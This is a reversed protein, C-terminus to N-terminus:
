AAARWAFVSSGDVPRRQRCAGKRLLYVYSASIGFQQAILRAPGTSSRIQAVADDSLRSSKARAEAVRLRRIASCPLANRKALAAFSMSARHAPNACGWTDCTRVYAMGTRQRKGRELYYVAAGLALAQQLDSIWVSPDERRAKRAVMTSPRQWCDCGSVIVSRERLDDLTRIGYRVPNGAM